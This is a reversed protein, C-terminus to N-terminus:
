YLAYLPVEIWEEYTPVETEGDWNASAKFMEVQRKYESYMSQECPDDSAVRCLIADIFDHRECDDEDETAYVENDDNEHTPLILATMSSKFEDAYCHPLEACMCAEAEDLDYKAIIRDLRCAAEYAQRPSKDDLNWAWIYDGETNVVKVTPAVRLAAYSGFAPHIVAPTYIVTM